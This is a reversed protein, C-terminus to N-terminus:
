ALFDALNFTRIAGGRQYAHAGDTRLPNPQTHASAPPLSEFTLQEVASLLVRDSLRDAADYVLIGGGGDWKIRSAFKTETNRGQRRNLQLIVHASPKLM